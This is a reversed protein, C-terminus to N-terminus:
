SESEDPTSVAESKERTTLRKLQRLTRFILAAPSFPHFTEVDVTYRIANCWQAKYAFDGPLMDYTVVGLKMASQICWMMALKGMSIKTFAPDWGMQYQYFSDGEHFGYMVGAPQGDIEIYPLIARGDPLWREALKLHFRQAREHLFESVGVPWRNAHLAALMRMSEAAPKDQGGLLTRAEHGNSMAKWRRRIKSRWNKSHLNEYGEWNVPLPAICRSELRNFIAAGLGCKKLAEHIIPLNPSEEPICTLRVTDWQPRLERFAECLLPTFHEELGQPVLFDFRQLKIQGIGGIFALQRLPRRAKQLDHGIVFPAIAVPEHRSNRLVAIALTFDERNEEWWLSVWDWRMFPATTACTELLKDWAPELAHFGPEDRVIDLVLPSTISRTPVDLADHETFYDTSRLHLTNM